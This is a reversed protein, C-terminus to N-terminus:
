NETKAYEKLIAIFKILYNIGWFTLIFLLFCTQSNLKDWIGVIISIFISNIFSLFLQVKFYNNDVIVLNKNKITYIVKKKLYYVINYIVFLIPVIVGCIIFFM